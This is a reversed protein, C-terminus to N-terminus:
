CSRPIGEDDNAPTAARTGRTTSSNWSEEDLGHGRAAGGPGRQDGLARRLPRRVGRDNLLDAMRPLAASRSLKWPDREETSLPTDPVASASARHRGRSRARRATASRERDSSSSASIMKNRRRAISRSRRPARSAASPRHIAQLWGAPTVRDIACRGPERV